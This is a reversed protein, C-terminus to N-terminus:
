KKLIVYGEKTNDGDVFIIGNNEFCTKIKKLKEESNKEISNSREILQIRAWPIGSKQSLDDVRWRLAARALRIQLGSIM